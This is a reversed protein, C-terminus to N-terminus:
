LTGYKVVKIKLGLEEATKIMNSTGRSKGDWFAVLYDSYEAMQRNRVSGASKGYTNWDAPFMALRLGKEKAYKEGLLDAGRAGGSVITVDELNSLYINLKNKLLEYDNFDRGGAVIVRNM